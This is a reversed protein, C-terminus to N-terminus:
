RRAYITECRFSGDPDYSKGSLKNNNLIEFIIYGSEDEYRGTYKFSTIIKQDRVSGTGSWGTDRAKLEFNFRDGNKKINLVARLPDVVDHYWVGTLRTEPFPLASSAEVNIVVVGSSGQKFYFFLGAFILLMIVMTKLATHRGAPREVGRESPPPSEPRIMESFFTGNSESIIIGSGCYSCKVVGKVGSLELEGSCNPCKASQFTVGPVRVAPDYGCSPCKAAFADKFGCKQCSV